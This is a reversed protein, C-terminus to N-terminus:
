CGGKAAKAYQNTVVAGYDPLLKDVKKQSKLFESTFFLAKAAGGDKGGGLWTNSAQSDLGPFEYLGLVVPVDAPKGGVLKVIKKANASDPGFDKPNDRYAADAEAMIKVFQCMFKKNKSAFDNHVVMGDFTAKGKKALDGSTVLVKGSKKIRGLAPDWVFAADIDGREWAAAIANPQMNLLKVDKPSIGWQELAFLTHFHTTSVFPVGIRKGKLDKPDKVGSGNRVVMAEADNINETIWFLTIPLGRSVGAAIPSSGALAIHVDGSAMANIVKAGSNFKKWNIKYGTAAEFKKDAIAVKWPNYVLQYGITVEKEAVAVSVSAVLAFVSACALAFVKRM